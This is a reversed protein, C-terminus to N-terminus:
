CVLAWRHLGPEPDMGKVITELGFCGRGVHWTDSTELLVCGAPRAVSAGDPLVRGASTRRKVQWILRKLPTTSDIHIWLEEVAIAVLARVDDEAQALLGAAMLWRPQVGAGAGPAPAGQAVGIQNGPNLRATGATEGEQLFGSRHPPSSTAARVPYGSSIVRRGGARM